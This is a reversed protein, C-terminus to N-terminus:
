VATPNMSESAGAGQAQSVSWEDQCRCGRASMSDGPAIRRPNPVQEEGSGRRSAQASAALPGTSPFTEALGAATCHVIAETRGGAAAMRACQRGSARANRRRLRPKLRSGSEARPPRRRDALSGCITRVVFVSWRDSFGRSLSTPSHNTPRPSRAYTTGPTSLPTLLRSPASWPQASPRRLFPLPWEHACGCSLPTQPLLM